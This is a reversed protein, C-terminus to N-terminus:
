YYNIIIKNARGWTILNKYHEDHSLTEINGILFLARKARTLAVNMRRPDKLFGLHGNKNSRVCSILIVDKEM